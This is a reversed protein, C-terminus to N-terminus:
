FGMTGALVVLDGPALAGSAAADRLTVPAGAGYVNAPM